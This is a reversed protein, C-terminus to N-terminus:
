DNPQFFDRGGLRRINHRAEEIADHDGRNPEAQSAVKLVSAFAKEAQQIQHARKEVDEEQEALICMTRVVVLETRMSFLFADETARRVEVAEAM